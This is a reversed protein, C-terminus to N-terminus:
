SIGFIWGEIRAVDKENATLPPNLYHRLFGNRDTDRLWRAVAYADREDGSLDETSYRRRFISPYVEAIVSKGEPIDWGDFPWFHIRGGTEKRIHHLWPIGAHTSKAVQGQVDFLFISKASSTWRDTLRYEDSGGTRPNDKRLSEVTTERNHSPWHTVFDELFEDWAANIGHRKFYSWPLSFAHDIGAIFLDEQTAIEILWEAIERRTWNVAGIREADPPTVKRPLLDESAEFVQLGRLRKESTQAGSYDIGIYRQFM